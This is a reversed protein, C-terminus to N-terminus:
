KITWNKVIMKLEELTANSKLTNARFSVIQVNGEVYGGNPDIKDLTAYNDPARGEFNEYTLKVNLLPCTDVILTKYYGISLEARLKVRKSSGRKSRSIWHEEVTVPVFWSPKPKPPGVFPEHKRPRGIKKGALQRQIRKRRSEKASRCEVCELSRVYRIGIHGNICPRGQYRKLGNAKAILRPTTM